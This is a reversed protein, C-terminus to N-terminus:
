FHLACLKGWVALQMGVARKLSVRDTRSSSLSLIWELSLSVSLIPSHYQFSNILSHPRCDTKGSAVSSPLKRQHGREKLVCVCVCVEADRPVGPCFM